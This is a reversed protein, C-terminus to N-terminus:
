VHFEGNFNQESAMTYMNHIILTLFHPAGPVYSVDHLHQKNKLM